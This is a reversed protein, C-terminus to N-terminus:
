RLAAPLRHALRGWLDAVESGSRARTALLVRQGERRAMTRGPLTLAGLSIEAGDPLVLGAGGRGSSRVLADAMLRRPPPRWGPLYPCLTDGSETDRLVLLGDRVLRADDDLGDLLGELDHPDHVIHGACCPLTRLGHDLAARVFPRVELDLTSGDVTTSGNSPAELPTWYYWPRGPRLPRWWRYLHFREAPVFASGLMM